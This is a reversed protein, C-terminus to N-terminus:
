HRLNCMGEEVCREEWMVRVDVGRKEFLMERKEETAGERQRERQRWRGGVRWWGRRGSLGSGKRLLGMQMVPQKRQSRCPRMLCVPYYTLLGPQQYVVVEM